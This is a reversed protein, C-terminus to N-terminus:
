GDSGPAVVRGAEAGGASAPVGEAPAGNRAATAVSVRSAGSEERRALLALCAPLLVLNGVTSGLTAIGVMTGFNAFPVFESFRLVVFGAAVALSSLVVGPGSVQYSALLSQRVSDHEARHRRYQLLCHFTDDVSLGLAVSAVLATAVDLKIGLWGSLGLVLAVALLTPLIALAALGPGRFAITLMLLIGAASWLFTVWSSEIVGRTTQTLLYSLGTIYAPREPTQFAPEAAALALAARFTQEKALAPQAEPVRIVLREWGVASEPRGGGPRSWFGGLLSGQPSRDILEVKRRLVEAAEDPPLATIKGEPDLVTALSVVNAVSAVGDRELGAIKAGLARAATISGPSVATAAPLVLSVVGIGGLRAETFNYDQVVRTDPKFANIYNTEYDLRLLGLTLPLVVAAVATLVWGPHDIVWGTLRNLVTILRSTSGPRVPRELPLPPLMANPALAITLLAAVLTCAALVAGFQFVPVVRSTLLAGYGIAGTVATWAVPRLVAALTELGAAQRDLGRRRDDRFHIALHSAAPMTLVIIQAVLPGGSLSLRLGLTAMVTEAALWVTWGALIPVLAWWPSGTISLTVLGILAMGAISLRRGDQDIATFGDALLVPPGVLAPRAPLNHRAAFADAAARLSAVTAKPDQEEMPKLRVVLATSRADATVVTGLLLPHTTVSRRLSELAPGGARRIAGGVTFPSDAQSLGAMNGALADTLRKRLFSPAKQLALLGDDVQWFLPMRDLSQVDVVAPITAPTISGALEALRDMGAPTLLEPDDYTVFVVNDNGFAASARQYDLVAPDSDVFFATLSQEYRVHRGLLLLAVLTLVVALLTLHRARLLLANM